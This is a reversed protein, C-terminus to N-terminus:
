YDFVHEIHAHTADFERLTVGLQAVPVVLAIRRTSPQTLIPQQFLETAHPPLQWGVPVLVSILLDASEGNGAVESFNAGGRALQTAAATFAAYRPLLQLTAPQSAVSAVVATSSIPADYSAQAGLGIVWGYIAKVGYETTLAYRREYKRLMGEGTAPVDSWLGRLKSWFPFEYWPRENIFDVYDQAVRAGYEDEATRTSTTLEALRGFITEYGSRVAYEFTTSTGIVLIMVHYGGNFPYARAQTARTVAAYSQWFQQVHGRFPFESPSDTKVFQAYEVPSFVLFWEPFTLYTQDEPRRHEAPTAIEAALVSGSLLLTAFLVRLRSRM